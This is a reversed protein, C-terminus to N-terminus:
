NLTEKKNKEQTYEKDEYPIQSWIEKLRKSIKLKTEPALKRGQLSSSIKNRHEQSLSRKFKYEKTM